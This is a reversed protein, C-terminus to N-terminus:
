EKINVGGMFHFMQLAFEIELRKKPEELSGHLLGNICDLRYRLTNYHIFLAKAAKSSNQNHELYVRLTSILDTGHRADYEIIPGLNDRCFQRIGDIGAGVPLMRFIGLEEYQAVTYTGENLAQGVELSRLACEYARRFDSIDTEFNSVGMSISFPLHPSNIRKTIRNLEALLNGKTDGSQTPSFPYFIVLKLGQYWFVSSPNISRIYRKAAYLIEDLRNHEELSISKNSPIDPAVVIILYPATLKHGLQISKHIAEMQRTHNESLLDLLIENRFRHELQHLSRLEMMKLATITAGHEIAIIETSDLQLESNSWVLIEGLKSSGIQVPCHIVDVKEAGVFVQARRLEWNPIKKIFEPRYENSLYSEGSPDRQIYAKQLHSMGIVPCDALVRHFQDIITIPHKVIQALANGIEQFQGGNLVIEIFQRHITESRVLESTKIELIRSTIPQIIDIFSIDDPLELVPFGLRNADDLLSAPLEDIYRHLKIALGVLGRESLRPILSKIQAINDRLPYMTTVLLDGSRVWPLIDPVEMVNVAKVVQDLGEEGALIKARYLPEIKLADRVTFNM